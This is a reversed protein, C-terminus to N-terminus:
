MCIVIMFLFCQAAVQLQTGPYAHANIWLKGKDDDYVHDSILHWLKCTTM